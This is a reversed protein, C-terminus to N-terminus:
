REARLPRLAEAVRVLEDLMAVGATEMVENPQVEGDPGILQHVFPVYVTLNRIWEAMPLGVRGPRASGVLIMLNPM